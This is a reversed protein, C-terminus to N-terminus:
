VMNLFIERFIKCVKEPSYNEYANWERLATESRNFNQLINWL